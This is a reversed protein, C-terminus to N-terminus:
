CLPIIIYRVHSLLLGTVINKLLNNRAPDFNMIDYRLVYDYAKKQSNSTLFFSIIIVPYFQLLPRLIKQSFPQMKKGM